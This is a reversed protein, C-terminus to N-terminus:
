GLAEEISTEDVKHKCELWQALLSEVKELGTRESEDLSASCDQCVSAAAFNHTGCQPCTVPKYDITQQETAETDIEAMDLTIARQQEEDDHLYTEARQPDEWGFRRMMWRLSSVRYGWYTASTHRFDKPLVDPDDLDAQEALRKVITNRLNEGTLPDGKASTNGGRVNVFLPEDPADPSSPDELWRRLHHGCQFLNVSRTEMSELKDTCPITVTFYSGHDTVHKRQLDLLEHVRVGSEFMFLIVTQWMLWDAEDAMAKITEFDLARAPRKKDAETLDFRKLYQEKVELVNRPPKVPYMVNYFKNMSKIYEDLTTITHETPDGNRYRRAEKNIESAAKQFAEPEPDKLDVDEPLYQLFGKVQTLNDAITTPKSIDRDAEMERKFEKLTATNEESIWDCAKIANEFRQDPNSM